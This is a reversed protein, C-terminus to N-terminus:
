YIFFVDIKYPTNSLACRRNRRRNPTAPNSTTVYGVRVYRPPQNTGPPTRQGTSYFIINKIQTADQATAAHKECRTWETLRGDINLTTM